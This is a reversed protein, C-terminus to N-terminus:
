EYDDGRDIDDDTIPRKYKTSEGEIAKYRKKLLQKKEVGVIRIRRYDRRFREKPSYFEEVVGTELLERLGAMVGERTKIGIDRRCLMLTDRGTGLPFRQLYRMIKGAEDAHAYEQYEEPLETPYHFPEEVDLENDIAIACLRSIPVGSESSTKALLEGTKVPVYVRLCMFPDDPKSPISRNRYSPPKNWTM